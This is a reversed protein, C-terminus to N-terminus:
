NKFKGVDQESDYRHGLRDILGAHNVATVDLKDVKGLVPANGAMVNSLQTKGPSTPSVGCLGLEPPKRKHAALVLPYLRRILPKNLNDTEM